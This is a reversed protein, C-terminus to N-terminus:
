GYDDFKAVLRWERRIVLGVLRWGLDWSRAQADAHGKEQPLLGVPLGIHELDPNIPLRVPNITLLRLSVQREYLM